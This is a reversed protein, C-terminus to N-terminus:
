IFFLVDEWFLCIVIVVFVICGQCFKGIFQIQDFASGLNSGFNQTLVAM